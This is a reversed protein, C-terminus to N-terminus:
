NKLKLEADDAARALALSLERAEAISLGCWQRGYILSVASPDDADTVVSAAHVTHKITTM